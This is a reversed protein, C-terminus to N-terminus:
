RRSFATGPIQQCDLFSRCKSIRWSGRCSSLQPVFRERGYPRQMRRLLDPDFSQLGVGPYSPGCQALFEIHEETIKSPYIECWLGTTRLFGVKKEAAVLNRFARANLNLGADVNFVAPVNHAALGELERTLYDESFAGQAIDAADWECFTCSMPCGRFTELYGVAGYNMLGMQYPSAIQNLDQPQGRVGTFKWGGPMPLELGSVRSLSTMRDVTSGTSELARGIECIVQEGERSVVADVYEFAM